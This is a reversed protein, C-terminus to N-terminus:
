IFAPGITKYFITDRFTGNENLAENVVDWAYCQGKYRNVVNSIHNKIISILTSNDWTGSTVWTPLQEHWLLTHCRLLQKNSKALNAILDSAGYSFHNREPETFM